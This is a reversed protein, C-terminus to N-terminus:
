NHAERAVGAGTLRKTCARRNSYAAPQDTHPGASAPGEAMRGASRNQRHAETRGKWVALGGYRVNKTMGTATMEVKGCCEARQSSPPSSNHAPVDKERERERVQVVISRGERDRSKFDGYGSRSKVEGDDPPYINKM